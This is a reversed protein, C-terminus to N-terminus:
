INDANQEGNTWIEAGEETVFVKSIPCQHTHELYFEWAREKAAAQADEMTLYDAYLGNAPNLVKFITKM